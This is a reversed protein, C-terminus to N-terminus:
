LLISELCSQFRVNARWMRQAKFTKETYKRAGASNFLVLLAEFAKEQEAKSAFLLSLSQLALFADEPADQAKNSWIMLPQCANNFWDSQLIKLAEDTSETIEALLHAQSIDIGQNQIFAELFQVNKPFVVKQVRSQITPLLLNENEALLFIYIESDPEEITKLLANAANLGMKESDRIIVAKKTSEFGTTEITMLLERIQDVKISQGDPRIVHLDTFEDQAVLECIRCKGCPREAEQCFIAQSLWIAMDYAGFGGVFLYAHSLKDAQLLKEFHTLLQPQIERINM